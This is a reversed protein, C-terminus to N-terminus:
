TFEFHKDVRLYPIITETFINHDSHNNHLYIVYTSHTYENNPLTIDCPCPGCNRLQKCLSCAIM